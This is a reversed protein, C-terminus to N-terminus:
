RPRRPFAPRMFIESELTV